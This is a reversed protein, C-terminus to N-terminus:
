LLSVLVTASPCTEELVHLVLEEAQVVLVTVQESVQEIAAVLVLVVM